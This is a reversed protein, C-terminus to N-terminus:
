LSHAHRTTGLNEHFWFDIVACLHLTGAVNGLGCACRVYGAHILDKCNFDGHRLEPLVSFRLSEVGEATLTLSPVAPCLVPADALM